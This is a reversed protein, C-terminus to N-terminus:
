NTGTTGQGPVFLLEYTVYAPKELEIIRELLPRHEALQEPATIKLHFPRSKGNSGTTEEDIEFGKIGMATELFLQLGKRTGRWQSLTVAAATLERLRGLGTSLSPRSASSGGRSTDLLVELDVWSALYPVFEDPTQYPDFITHLRELVSESPAHMTEMVELIAALPNGPAATRQFVSPLLRKIQEKKM